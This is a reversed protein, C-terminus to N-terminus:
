QRYYDKECGITTAKGHGPYVLTNPPLTFLRKLSSIIDKTSGGLDTRGFAHFFLTDGSFLISEKPNYLCISGDTHGPTHLIEFGCLSSGEKLLINAKPVVLDHIQSSNLCSSAITSLTLADTKELVSYCLLASPYTQLIKGLAMIHDFHAHTLVVHTVPATINSCILDWNDGPDIIMCFKEANSDGEVIYCNTQYLGVEVCTITM